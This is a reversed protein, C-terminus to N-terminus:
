AAQAADEPELLRRLVNIESFLQGSPLPAAWFGANHNRVV